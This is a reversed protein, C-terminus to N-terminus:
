CDLLRCATLEEGGAIHRPETVAREARHAKVLLFPQDLRLAPARAAVPEKRSALQHFQL